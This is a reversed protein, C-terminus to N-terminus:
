VYLKSKLFPWNAVFKSKFLPWNARFKGFKKCLGTIVCKPFLIIDWSIFQVWLSTVTWILLFFFEVFITRSSIGQFLPGGQKPLWYINWLFASASFNLTYPGVTVALHSLTEWIVCWNCKISLFETKVSFCFPCSDM